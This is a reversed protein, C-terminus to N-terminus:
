FLFYDQTLALYVLKIEKHRDIEEFDMGYERCYQILIDRAKKAEDRTIEPMYEKYNGAMGKRPLSRSWRSAPIYTM